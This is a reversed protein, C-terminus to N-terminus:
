GVINECYERVWKDTQIIQELTPAKIRNHSKIAENILQPIDMFGIKNKLFYDVAVENASNLVVTDTGEKKAADTALRLCSFTDMDPEQFTLKSYKLFNMEETNSINRDPYTLAYQIPIKMDPYSLQAIISNDIYEVMSHIISQPHIIVKIKDISMNFLWRAEILELGKNMLTASDISIKNGMDWNPHKLAQAPTISKLGSAKKGLFPGGSATLIIKKIQNDYRNGALCQFIASHESDVPIININSKRAAEMIISGAVVLTEKNALAIDKGALIAEYTPVLGIMGVVSTVVMEAESITAAKVLGDVGVEVTTTTDAIKNKLEKAANENMVVAIKPKYKRIQQELLKINSNASIASVNISKLEDIVKLTQVGISGTSGLIAINKVM